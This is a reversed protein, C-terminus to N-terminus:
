EAAEIQVNWQEHLEGTARYWAALAIQYDGRAALLERQAETLAEEARIRALLVEPATRTAAREADEAADMARQAALVYKQSLRFVTRAAAARRYASKVESAQTELKRRAVKDRWDLTVALRNREATRVGDLLNRDDLAPPDPPETMLILPAESTVSLTEDNMLLKLRDEGAAARQRAYHLPIQRSDSFTEATTASLQGEELGSRAALRRDIADARAAAQECLKLEGLLRVQDWYAEIAEFLLRDILDGLGAKSSPGGHASPRVVLLPAPGARDGGGAEAAGDAVELDPRNRLVTQVFQDLSLTVAQVDSQRDAGEGEGPTIGAALALCASVSALFAVATRRISRTHM